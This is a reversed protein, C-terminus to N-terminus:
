VVASAKRLPIRPQLISTFGGALAFTTHAQRRRKWLRRPKAQFMPQCPVHDPVADAMTEPAVLQCFRSKNITQGLRAGCAHVWVMGVFM